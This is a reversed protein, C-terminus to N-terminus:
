IAFAEGGAERYYYYGTMNITAASLLHLGRPPVNKEARARMKEREVKSENARREFFARAKKM